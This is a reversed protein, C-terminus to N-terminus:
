EKYNDSNEYNLLIKLFGTSKKNYTDIIPKVYQQVDPNTSYIEYVDGISLKSFDMIKNELAYKSYEYPLYKYRPSQSAAIARKRYYTDILSKQAKDM